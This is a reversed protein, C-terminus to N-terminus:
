FVFLHDELCLITWIQLTDFCQKDAEPKFRWCNVNLCCILNIREHDITCTTAQRHSLDFPCWSFCFQWTWLFCCMLETWFVYSGYKSKLMCRLGTTDVRLKLGSLVKQQISRVEVYRDSLPFYKGFLLLVLFAHLVRFSVSPNRRWKFMM